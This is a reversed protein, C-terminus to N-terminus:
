LSQQGPAAQTAQAQFDLPPPHPMHAFHDMYIQLTHVAPGAHQPPFHPFNQILQEGLFGELSFDPPLHPAMNHFMTSLPMGGTMAGMGNTLERALQSTFSPPFSFVGDAGDPSDIEVIRNESNSTPLPFGNDGTAHGPLQEILAAAEPQDNAFMTIAQRIVAKILKEPNTVAINSLWGHTYPIITVTQTNLLFSFVSHTVVFAICSPGSFSSPQANARLNDFEKAIKTLYSIVFEAVPFLDGFEKILELDKQFKDPNNRLRVQAVLWMASLGFIDVAPFTERRILEHLEDALQEALDNMGAKAYLVVASAKTM